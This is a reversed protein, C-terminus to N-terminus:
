SVIIGGQSPQKKTKGKNKIRIRKKNYNNKKDKYGHLSIYKYM